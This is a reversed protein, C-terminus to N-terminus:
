PGEAPRNVMRSLLRFLNTSLLIGSLSSLTVPVWCHSQYAPNELAVSIGELSFYFISGAFVSIMLSFPVADHWSSAVKRFSRSKQPKM